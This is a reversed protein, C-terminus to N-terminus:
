MNKPIKNKDEENCFLMDSVTIIGQRLDEEMEINDEKDKKDKIIGGKCKPCKENKTFEIPSIPIECKVCWIRPCIYIKIIKEM